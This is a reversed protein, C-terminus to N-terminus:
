ADQRRLTPTLIHATQLVWRLSGPSVRMLYLVLRLKWSQLHQNAGRFSDSAEAFKGEALQLKGRELFLSVRRETLRTQLAARESATLDDRKATKELVILDREAHTIADGSLGNSHYWYSLLVKRQYDFRAGAKALRLWLDYDHARRLNEDFLGVDLISQRRALVGSTIVGCQQTVLTEFTAVGTSPAINMYTRGALPSDGVILADAYVVDYGGNSEIFTVQEDLYNAEWYDDADLFAIYRGRAVRLGANRAAAAGLNKQKLYTVDNAFPRLVEELQETDPSGDNIVIIEFDSLTQSLVSSLARAVYPASKYAPIVVSVLPASQGGCGDNTQAEISSMASM